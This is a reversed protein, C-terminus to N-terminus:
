DVKHSTLHVLSLCNPIWFQIMLLESELSDLNSRRNYSSVYKLDLIMNYPITDIEKRDFDM